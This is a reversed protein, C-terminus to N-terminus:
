RKGLPLQRLRADLAEMQPRLRQAEALAGADRTQLWRGLARQLQARLRIYEVVTDRWEAADVPVDLRAIVDAHRQLSDAADFLARAASPDAADTQQQSVLKSAAADLPDRSMADVARFLAERKSYDRVDASVNSWLWWGVLALAALALWARPRLWAVSLRSTVPLAFGAGAILGALLGGGHAANDIGPVAAGAFLSYAVFALMSGRTQQLVSVPMQGRCVFLYALLAGAVGFIAGSAGVSVTLPGWWNSSLAGVVGTVLFLLAFAASGFLREAIQGIQWLAMMNFAIHIPNGHLFISTVLRWPEGAHVLPAFNAGMDRLVAVPMSFMMGARLTQAAYVLVCLVVIAATAPTRPVRTHLARFFHVEDM